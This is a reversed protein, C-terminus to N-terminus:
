IRKSAVSGTAPHITIEYISERPGHIIISRPQATGDPFFTAYAPSRETSDDPRRVQIESVSEPMVQKTGVSTREKEFRDPSVETELWSSRATTDIAVRVAKGKIIAQRHAYSLKAALTRAASRAGSERYSGSLMPASVALIAAIIAMVALLEVFVFGNRESAQKKNTSLRMINGAFCKTSRILFFFIIPSM